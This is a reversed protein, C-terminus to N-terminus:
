GRGARRLALSIARRLHTELLQLRYARAPVSSKVPLIHLLAADAPDEVGLRGITESVSRAIAGTDPAAGLLLSEAERARAAHGGVGSFAISAGAVRGGDLTVSAAVCVVPHRGYSAGFEVFCQGTGPPAGPFDVQTIIERNGLSTEFPGVFFDEANVSRLGSSSALTLRANLAVAACPLQAIPSAHALSGVVTGRHRVPPSAIGRLAEILLPVRRGAEISSEVAAQRALAGIVLHEDDVQIGPLDEVLNIDVLHRPQTIRMNLMPVLSQGGALIRGDEGLERMLEVAEKTTRAKSYEFAPPKV